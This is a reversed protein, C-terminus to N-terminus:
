GGIGNGDAAPAIPGRETTMPAIAADFALPERGDRRLATGIRRKTQTTRGAANKKATRRAAM